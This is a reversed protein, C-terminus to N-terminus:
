SPKSNQKVSSNEHVVVTRKRKILFLCSVIFNFQQQSRNREGQKQTQNQSIAILPSQISFPPSFELHLFHKSHMIIFFLSICWSYPTWSYMHKKGM